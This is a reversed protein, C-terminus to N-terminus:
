SFVRHVKAAERLKKRIGNHGRYRQSLIVRSDWIIVTAMSFQAVRRAWAHVNRGDGLKYIISSCHPM